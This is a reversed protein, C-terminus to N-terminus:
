IQLFMIINKDEEFDDIKVGVLTDSHNSLYVYMYMYKHLTQQIAM